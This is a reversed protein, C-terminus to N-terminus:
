KQSASSLNQIATSTDTGITGNSGMTRLHVGTMGPSPSPTPIAGGARFSRFDRKWGNASCSAKWALAVADPRPKGDHTGWKEAEPPADGHM